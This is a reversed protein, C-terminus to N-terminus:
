TMISTILSVNSTSTYLLATNETVFYVSGGCVGCLVFLLEHRYGGGRVTSIEGKSVALLLFDFTDSIVDVGGSRVASRTPNM